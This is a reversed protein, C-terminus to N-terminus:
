REERLLGARKAAQRLILALETEPNM